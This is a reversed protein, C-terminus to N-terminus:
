QYVIFNGTYVGSRVEVSDDTLADDLAEQLDAYLLDAPNPEAAADVTLTRPGYEYAGIDCGTGLGNPVDFPRQGGASTRRATATM